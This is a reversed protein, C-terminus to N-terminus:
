TCSRGLGQARLGADSDIGDPKWPTKAPLWGGCGSLLNSKHGVTHISLIINRYGFLGVM